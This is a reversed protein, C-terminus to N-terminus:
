GRKSHGAPKDLGITTLDIEPLLIDRVPRHKEPCTVSTHSIQSLFGANEFFEVDFLVDGRDQFHETVRPTIAAFSGIFQEFQEVDGV